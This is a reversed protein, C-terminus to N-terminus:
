QKSKDPLYAYGEQFMWVGKTEGEELVKYVDYINASPLVDVSLLLRKGMSASEYSCGKQQLLKWYSDFQREDKEVIIMYTSHGSRRIVRDFELAPSENTPHAEVIDLYNIGRTCYPSNLLRFAQSASEGIPEAWVFEGGYGHWDKPDLAFRIKVLQPRADM